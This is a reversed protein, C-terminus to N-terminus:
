SIPAHPSEQRHLRAWWRKAAQHVRAPDLGSMCPHDVLPCVKHHCPRCSVPHRLVLTRRSWPRWQRVRNTGSFLVVSPIGASAAIHSPGSDAGIFLDARELLAATQTVSVRGTWDILNAHPTLTAAASIDEAGGVIVVRWGESLFRSILSRWRSPAWRKAATGAGIHVALLPAADGFRGAHLGDPESWNTLEISRPAHVLARSRSRTAAEQRERPARHSPLPWAAHLRHAVNIRDADAVHVVVRAPGDAPINLTDLLALRSNVEHRGPVWTAVDTLLFGGGGMDWGVRRPVGALALVLISLIDGRVDIGLDYAGGRLSRGLSWVAALMSSRGRNREFWSKEALHVRDIEPNAEFVEHNSTSALVDISAFPYASRLRAILPSTLVADGLHDLQILLIRKPVSVIPVPRLKRWFRMAISGVTDLAHVSVRWRLRSYRYRGLQVPRPANPPSTNAQSRTM